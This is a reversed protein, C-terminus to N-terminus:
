VQALRAAPVGALMKAADEPLVPNVFLGSGLEFGAVQTPRPLVQIQWHFDEALTRWYGSRRDRSPASYLFLNYAPEPLVEEVRALLRRLVHALEALDGSTATEFDCAHDRPVVWFEYPHRSAWPALAVFRETALILREGHELQDQVVDCLVCREKIQYHRRAGELIEKLVKPTVPLGIVQSHVHHPLGAGALVGQNKFVFISRFRPDRKLDGIRQAWAGLVVAVQEPALDALSTRHEPSEIVVEHAGTGSAWDFMREAHRELPDEIRLMPRANPVVRVQWGPTDAPRGAPRGWALV